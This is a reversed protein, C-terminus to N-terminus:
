GGYDNQTDTRGDAKCLESIYICMALSTNDQLDDRALPRPRPVLSSCASSEVHHGSREGRTEDKESQQTTNREEKLWKREEQLQERLEEDYSRIHDKISRKPTHM